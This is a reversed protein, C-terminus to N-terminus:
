KVFQGKENRKPTTKVLPNVTIRGCSKCIYQIKKFRKGDDGRKWRSSYHNLTTAKCEPCVLITNTMKEKKTNTM